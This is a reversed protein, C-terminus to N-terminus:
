PPHPYAPAPSSGLVSLGLSEIGSDARFEGTMAWTKPLDSHSGPTHRSLDGLVGGGQRARRRRDEERTCPSCCGPFPRPNFPPSAKETHVHTHSLALFPSIATLHAKYNETVARM